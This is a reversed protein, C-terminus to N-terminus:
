SKINFSKGRVTYYYVTDNVEPVFPQNSISSKENVLPKLVCLMTCFGKVSVAVVRKGDKNKTFGKKLNWSFLEAPIQIKSLIHNIEPQQDIWHLKNEINTFDPLTDNASINIVLNVPIDFTYHYIDGAFRPQKRTLADQWDTKENPYEEHLLNCLIIDGPKEDKKYPVMWVRAQYRSSGNASSYFEFLRPAIVHPMSSNSSFVKGFIDVFTKNNGIGCAHIAIETNQDVISDPLPNFTGADIFEQLRELTARRSDPTVKVSLGLYQDGHSVLNIRGWPLQNAPSHKVLYQRVEVLSRCTTVLHLTKDPSDSIFYKVAESYYPNETNKDEGLIFTISERATELQLVTDAIFNLSTSDTTVASNGNEKRENCSVPLILAIIFSSFWSKHTTITKM